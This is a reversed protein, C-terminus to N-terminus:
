LYSSVARGGLKTLKSWLADYDAYGGQVRRVDLAEAAFRLLNQSPGIDILVDPNQSLVSKLAAEFRVPEQIQQSWYGQLDIPANSYLAGTVNLAVDLKPSSFLLSAAQEDILSGCPAMLKSHSPIGGTDLLQSPVGAQEFEAHLELLLGRVGTFVVSTPSNVVGIAVNGKAVDEQRKPDALLIHATAESCKVALMAGDVKLEMMAKARALMLKLADEPSLIGALSAVVYESMSHGVMSSPRVGLKNLLSAMSFQVAFMAANIEVFDLRQNSHDGYVLDRLDRRVLRHCMTACKDFTDRYTQSRQYLEKAMHRYQVGGGPLMIALRPERKAPQHVTRELQERLSSIASTIDTAVLAVRHAFESRGMRLTHAVDGLKTNSHCELFDALESCLQRLSAPTKASLCLLYPGQELPGPWDAREAGPWEQLVLHCNTGGIGTSTVGAARLHGARSPWDRLTRNVFLPTGDLGLNPNLDSINITAPIKGHYLSLVVKMFGAVGAAINSHGINPKVSGIACRKVADGGFVQSIARTEIPDGVKTGTGHAEIYEIQEPTLNASALARRIVETQGQISPAAYSAKANGDNNIAGGKVVAYIHDGAALADELRKLVVVGVGDGLVTGSAEADFARCLGDHSNIFGEIHHYGVQPFILSSAGALAMDCQGAALAQAAMAIAVLGTSCSTQVAISPGTLGLQYSVRSALYDKDNGFETLSALPADSPDMLGGGALHHLLYLPLFSGAYVATNQGAANPAYGAAELAKWCCELFIRQQPDMLIAERRSIGWFDADFQDVGNLFAGAKVYSPDSLTSNTVGHLRLEQDTLPRIASHNQCLNSWFRDVDDAGPFRASMGIIAIDLPGGVLRSAAQTGIQSAVKQKPTTGGQTRSPNSGKLHDVFENLRPFQYLDVVPVRIGIREHILACASAALLSHGGRDFFDDDDRLMDTRLVELWIERVHRLFNDADKAPSAVKASSAASEKLKSRDLKGTSAIPIDDIQILRGPLAYQPVRLKMHSRLDAEWSASVQRLVVYAILREPQGSDANNEVLVAASAVNEHECLAAEIASPVVSYGRLKVMFAKRGKVELGSHSLRGEDGTRFMLRGPLFPDSVFREATLEPAGLYGHGVSHGGVYVEGSFGFPVAKHQGDLIYISVNEMPHGVVAVKPSQETADRLSAHSVDHTEAISYDNVVNVHPLAALIKKKLSATIVEGNLYVVRLSALDRRFDIGKTNLIQDALSPTFLVRSVQNRKLYDVLRPPDYITGDPIIYAPLGRLIPRMVEWVLFVNCAEREDVSYPLYEYRWYYSNVASRHPCVIGKPEGTTGSSFVIQAPADIDVNVGASANPLAKAKLRESWGEDLEFRTGDWDAPLHNRFSEKTLVVNVSAKRFIKVLAAPPQARDVSVYAGGAKLIGFLAIVYESSTDMLVAVRSGVSQGVSCLYDALCSSLSDLEALSITKSGDILAPADPTEIAREHLLEHLTREPYPMPAGVSISEGLLGKADEAGQIIRKVVDSPSSQTYFHDGDFMAVEFNSRTAERWQGLESQNVQDDALGGMALIPASLAVVRGRDYLEALKFDARLPPLLVQEVFGRERLAEAPVMGLGFVIQTLETDSLTYMAPDDPAVQPAKHASAIVLFPSPLKATELKRATEYAVLAGMSHGFFAFPTDAYAGLGNIVASTLADMDEFNSEAFRNGRGPLNVCLLEIDSPLLHTWERFAQSGGGGHPFCVLRFVPDTCEGFRVIIPSQEIM